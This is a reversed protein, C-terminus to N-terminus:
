VTQAEIIILRIIPSWVDPSSKLADPMTAMVQLKVDLVSGDTFGETSLNGHKDILRPPTSLPASSKVLVRGNSKPDRNSGPFTIPYSCLGFKSQQLMLEYSYPWETEAANHIADVILSMNRSEREVYFSCTYKPLGYRPRYPHTLYPFRAEVNHLTFQEM